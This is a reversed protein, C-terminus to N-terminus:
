PLHGALSALTGGFAFALVAACCCCFLIPLLVAAAARGHGIGHAAALGLVYLVVCWVGGVLQGCFPVLFLLSTAEAFCVVRFTAEFGRQAGGLLLLMLHLILTAVFVGIVVAVGGFVVQAVLGAWGEAWGLLAALEPREAGLAAWGSGVVSRFIAQYLSAAVLGVWGLVVAYLLPSGLGGTVPMARFFTGPETLVQRTTEVLATLFGIRDRQDWTFGSASAGTPPPPPPAEPRPVPPVAPVLGAQLDGGCNPCLGLPPDPVAHRCHPCLAM